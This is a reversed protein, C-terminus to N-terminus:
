SAKGDKSSTYRCEWGYILNDLNYLVDDISPRYRPDSTLMGQEITRGRGSLLEWVRSFLRGEPARTYQSLVTDFWRRVGENLTFIVHAPREQRGVHADLSDTTVCPNEDEEYRRQQFFEAHGPSITRQKEFSEIQDRGGRLWAMAISLVCGFAWVDASPAVNPKDLLLEPAMCDCNEKSDLRLRYEQSWPNRSGDFSMSSQHGLSGEAPKMLSGFRLAQQKFTDLGQVHRNWRLGTVNFETIKFVAEKDSLFVLINQPKLNIVCFTVPGRDEHRIGNHLYRVGAAVGTIQRMRTAMESLSAPSPTKETMWSWLDCVAQESFLSFVTPRELAALAVNVNRHTGRPTQLLWKTIAWEEQHRAKADEDILMDKRAYRQNMLGGLGNFHRAAIKVSFVRGAIDGGIRTEELFPLRLNEEHGMASVIERNVLMVPCFIYQRHHFSTATDSAGFMAHIQHRTFPLHVDKLQHTASQMLDTQSAEDDDEVLCVSEFTRWMHSDPSVDSLLIAALVNARCPKGGDDEDGLVGLRFMRVGSDDDYDTRVATGHLYLDDLLEINNDFVERARGIPCFRKPEDLKCVHELKKVLQNAAVKFPFPNGGFTVDRFQQLLHRVDDPSAASGINRVKSHHPINQPKAYDIRSMSDLKKSLDDPKIRVAFPQLRHGTVKDLAIPESDGTYIVGHDAARTGPSRVGRGGYSTVPLATCSWDGVKVVIFRKVKTHVWQGYLDSLWASSATETDTEGRESAETWL